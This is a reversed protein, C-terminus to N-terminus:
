VLSVFVIGKKKMHITSPNSITSKYWYSWCRYVISHFLNSNYHTRTHIRRRDCARGRCRRRLRGRFSAISAVVVVVVVFNVIFKLVVRVRSRLDADLPWYCYVTTRPVSFPWFLGNDFDCVFALCILDVWSLGSNFYVCKLWVSLCVCLMCMWEYM